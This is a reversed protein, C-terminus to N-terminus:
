PASDRWGVAWRLTLPPFPHPLWVQIPPLSSHPYHAVHQSGLFLAVEKALTIVMTVPRLLVMLNLARHATEATFRLLRQSHTKRPGEEKSSHYLSPQIALDLLGVVVQAADIHKEWLHFGRGVLEVASCRLNSCLASRPSPKELLVSQLTKATQRAVAPDMIEVEEARRGLRKVSAMKDGGSSFEAGIMGLIVLATAQQQQTPSGGGVLGAGPSESDESSGRSLGRGVAARPQLRGAWQSVLLRRGEM